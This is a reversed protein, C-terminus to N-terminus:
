DESMSENRWRKGLAEVKAFMRASWLALRRNFGRNRMAREMADLKAIRAREIDANWKALEENTM